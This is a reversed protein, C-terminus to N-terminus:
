LFLNTQVGQKAQKEKKKRDLKTWGVIKIESM